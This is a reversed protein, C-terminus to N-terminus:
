TINGKETPLIIEETEPTRKLFDKGTGLIQLIRGPKEELPKLTDYFNDNNHIVYLLFM